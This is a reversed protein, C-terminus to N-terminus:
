GKIIARPGGSVPACRILKPPATLLKPPVMPGAKTDYAIKPEIALSAVAFAEM